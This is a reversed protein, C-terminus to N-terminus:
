KEKEIQDIIEKLDKTSIKKEDVFFSVLSKYSNNFYDQIFSQMHKKKYDEEAFVPSYIFTNGIKKSKLFGKKELNKITSALTTYPIKPEPMEDLFSKINAPAVQWVIQMADEEQQTLKEM